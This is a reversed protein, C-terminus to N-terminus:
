LSLSLCVSLCVCLCLCLYLFFSSSSFFFLLLSSSSSFFFFLLLFSSSQLRLSSSPFFIFYVWSCSIYVQHHLCSKRLGNFVLSTITIAKGTVIVYHPVDHGQSSPIIRSLQLTQPRQDRFSPFLLVKKFATRVIRPSNQEVSESRM